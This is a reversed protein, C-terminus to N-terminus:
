WMKESFACWLVMSAGATCCSTAKVTGGYDPGHAVHSKGANQGLPPGRIFRLAVLFVLVM